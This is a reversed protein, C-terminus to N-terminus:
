RRLPWASMRVGSSTGGSGGEFNGGGNWLTTINDGTNLVFAISGASGSTLTVNDLVAIGNVLVDMTNGNWGDGWSDLM